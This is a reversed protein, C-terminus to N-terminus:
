QVRDQALPIWHVDKYRTEKLDMQIHDM